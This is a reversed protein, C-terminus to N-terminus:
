INRLLLMEWKLINQADPLRPKKHVEVPKGNDQGAHKHSNEM